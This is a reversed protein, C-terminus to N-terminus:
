KEENEPEKKPSKPKRLLKQTNPLVHYGPIRRDVKYNQTAAVWTVWIKFADESIDPSTLLDARMEKFSKDIGKYTCIRYFVHYGFATKVPKGVENDKLKWIADTAEKVLLRAGKWMRPLRGKLGSTRSDVSHLVALDEFTIRATGAKAAKVKRYIDDAMSKKVVLIHACDVSDVTRKMHWVLLRKMLIIKARDAIYKELGLKTMGLQALYQEFTITGMASRKVQAKINELQTATVNVVEEKTINVGLRESELELLAKNQLYDINRGMMRQEPKLLGEADWTRALLDEATVIKDGVKLLEGIKLPGSYQTSATSPKEASQAGVTYGLGLTLLCLAILMLIRYM